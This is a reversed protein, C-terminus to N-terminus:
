LKRIGGSGRWFVSSSISKRNGCTNKGEETDDKTEEENEAVTDGRLTKPPLQNAVEKL